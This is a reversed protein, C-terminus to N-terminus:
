PNASKWAAALDPKTAILIERLARRTETNLGSYSATTDKGSLIEDLRHYLLERAPGPLAEFVESYILYSCPYTFLRTRLDFDRLSRGREDRKASRGFDRVFEAGGVIPGTLPTEETFLLYKLVAECQAKLYRVHGYTALMARSEYGFRALLNHMHLQHELVMLAVIDSSKELYSDLAVFESLNTINGVFNPERRRREFAPGGSLNGLHTQKGHLGTVYWGGWRESLPTRHNVQAVGSNLDPNGDEATVLSRALHGPVGLTRSSAHCELCQNERTLRPNGAATQDVTYFVAGLIPDAVSIEIFPAGPIFGVYVDDNFFIARPSKPSIRDRQFSTKSFVLMQSSKPIRLAELLAPLYGQQADFSLPAGGQRTQAFLRSVANSAPATSYNVPADEFPVMHSAGQFDARSSAVGTLLLVTLVLAFPREFFASM